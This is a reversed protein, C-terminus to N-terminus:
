GCEKLITIASEFDEPPPASFEVYTNKNPHIFGLTAAHLLQRKISSILQTAETQPLAALTRRGGYDPDGAVPHHISALHVRIQHTRGTELRVRLLAFSAYREVVEWHTVAQRGRRPSSSMKKRDKPHRGILSSIMGKKNSPNGLVLARYVRNISHDKFQTALHVHARDSKAVVLVGSTNKDLRHVIGPRFPSGQDSLSKCHYLLGNVLTGSYNGAAPHVVLGSPKNVVIISEDEFLINLPIPEPAAAMPPPPPICLQIRDGARLRAGAKPIAANLMVKQRDILKKLHSRTIAPNANKLFVDLRLGEDQPCVSYNKTSSEL